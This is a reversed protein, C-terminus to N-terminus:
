LGAIHSVYRNMRQASDHRMKDTVHGYVSLTFAATHHGLNEQLTKVDDGAQLSLVAYTHRLDHFRLDERNITRAIQKFHKSVTVHTLNGGFANTFVLDNPNNWRCGALMREQSQKHHQRRLTEFVIDAPQIQRSKGNKPTVFTYGKGIEKSKQLQRSIFICHTRFDIDQWQLGLLESQRM